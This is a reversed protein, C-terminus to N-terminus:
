GEKKYKLSKREIKEINIDHYRNHFWEYAIDIAQEETDAEIDPYYASDSIEINWKM